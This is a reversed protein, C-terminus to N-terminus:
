NRGGKGCTHLYVPFSHNIMAKCWAKVLFSHNTAELCARIQFCTKFWPKMYLVYSNGLAEQGIEETVYLSPSFISDAPAQSCMNKSQMLQLYREAFVLIISTIFWSIHLNTKLLIPLTCGDLHPHSGSGASAISTLTAPQLAIINSSACKGWKHSFQLAWLTLLSVCPAGWNGCWM